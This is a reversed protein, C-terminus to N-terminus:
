DIEISSGSGDMTGGAILTISSDGQSDYLTINISTDSVWHYNAKDYFTDDQIFVKASVLTDYGNFYMDVLYGNDWNFLADHMTVIVDKSNNLSDYVFDKHIDIVNSKLEQRCGYLSCGIFIILILNRM